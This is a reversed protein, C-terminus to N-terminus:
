MLNSQNSARNGSQSSMYNESYQFSGINLSVQGTIKKEFKKQLEPEPYHNKQGM